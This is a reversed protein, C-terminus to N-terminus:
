EIEETDKSSDYSLSIQGDDYSLLFSGDSLLVYNLFNSFVMDEISGPYAGQESKINEIDDCVEYFEMMLTDVTTASETEVPQGERSLVMFNYALSTSAFVALIAIYIVLRKKPIKEGKLKKEAKEQRAIRAKAKAIRVEEEKKEEVRKRDIKKIEM